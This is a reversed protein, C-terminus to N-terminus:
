GIAEYAALAAINVIDSVTSGMEIIQAPKDLGMLLPGIRKGGGIQELL